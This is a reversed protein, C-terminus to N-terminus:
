KWIWDTETKLTSTDFAVEPEQEKLWQMYGVPERHPAYIPFSKYIPRVPIAYYYGSSVHVPSFAAEALPVQLSAMADDDWARPVVLTAEIKSAPGQAYNMFASIGAVFVSTCILLKVRKGSM